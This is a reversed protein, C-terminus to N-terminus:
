TEQYSQDLVSIGVAAGSGPALVAFCPESSIWELEYQASVAGATGVQYGIPPTQMLPEERSNIVLVTAAALAPTLIRAKERRYRRTLLRRPRGMNAFTDVTWTMCNAFEPAARRAAPIGTSQIHVAVPEIDQSQEAITGEDYFDTM